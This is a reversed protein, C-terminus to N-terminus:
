PKGDLKQIREILWRDQDALALAARYDALAQEKDGVRERAYGRWKLASSSKPQDALVRDFDEQARAYDGIHTHAQGRWLYANSVERAPMDKTARGKSERDTIVIDYDARAEKYKKEHFYAGARGVYAPMMDHKLRIAESYATIAQPYNRRSAHAQGEGYSFSPNAPQLRKGATFDALASDHRKRRQYFMGRRYYVDAEVPEIALATTLDAEAEGHREAWELAAARRTLVMRRDQNSIPAINLAASYREIARAYDKARFAADGERTLQKFPGAAAAQIATGFGRAGDVLKPAVTLGFWGFLAVFCLAGILGLAYRWGFERVPIELSAGM